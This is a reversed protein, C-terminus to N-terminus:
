IHKGAGPAVEIVATHHTFPERGADSQRVREAM